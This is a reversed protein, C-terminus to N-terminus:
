TGLIWLTFGKAKLGKKDLIKWQENRVALRKYTVDVRSQLMAALDADTFSAPAGAMPLVGAAFPSRHRSRRAGLLPESSTFIGALSYYDATPIPDFKHDHCKACAVTLGLFARCTADIQEDAIAMRFRHTDNELDRAVQRRLRYEAWTRLGRESWRLAAEPTRDDIMRLWVQREIPRTLRVWLRSLPLLILVAVAFAMLVDGVTAAAPTLLGLWSWEEVSARGVHIAFFVALNVIVGVVACRREPERTETPTAQTM